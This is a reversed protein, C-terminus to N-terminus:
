QAVVSRPEELSCDPLARVSCAAHGLAPSVRPTPAAVGAAAGLNLQGAGVGQPQVGALVVLSRLPASSAEGGAQRGQGARGGAIDGSVAGEGSCRQGAEPMTKRGGEGGGVVWGCCGAVEMKNGGRPEQQKLVWLRSIHEHRENVQLWDQLCIIAALQRRELVPLHRTLSHTRAHTLSLAPANAPANAPPRAPPRTPPHTPPHPVPWIHQASHPPCIRHIPPWTGARSKWGAHIGGADGHRAAGKAGRATGPSLGRASLLPSSYQCHAKSAGRQMLATTLLSIPSSFVGCTPPRTCNPPDLQLPQICHTPPHTCPTPPHLQLPHTCACHTSFAAPPEGRALPTAAPCRCAPHGGSVALHARGHMSQELEIQQRQQEQRAAWSSRGVGGKGVRRHRGMGAQRGAGGAQWAPGGAGPAQEWQTCHLPESPPGGSGGGRGRVAGCGARCSM